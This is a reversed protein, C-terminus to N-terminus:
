IKSKVKEVLDNVVQLNFVEEEGIKIKFKKEVDVVLDIMMLSDLGIDELFRSELKVEEASDLEAILVISDKIDELM